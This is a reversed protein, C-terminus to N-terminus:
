ASSATSRPAHIEHSMRALFESKAHNAADAARKEDEMQAARKLHTIDFAIGQLSFRRGALKTASSNANAEQIWVIRSTTPKIMRYESRFNGGNAVTKAFETLGSHCRDEPHLQRFWLIPNDLWQEQTFGLLTEIQPSVYVEQITDDLSAMFTVVPLREVLPAIVSIPSGLALIARLRRPTSEPQSDVWAPTGPSPRHRSPRRPKGGARM